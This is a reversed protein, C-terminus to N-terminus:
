RTASEPVRPGQNTTLGFDAKTGACGTAFFMLLVLLLGVAQRGRRDPVNQEQRFQRFFIALQEQEGRRM